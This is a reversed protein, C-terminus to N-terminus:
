ETIVAEPAAPRDTPEPQATAPRATPAPAAPLEPLQDVQETRLDGYILTYQEADELKFWCVVREADGLRAGAGTYAFEGTSQVVGLFTAGRAIDTAIPSFAEQAGAPDKSQDLERVTEIDLNLYDAFRQNMVAQRAESSEADLHEGSMVKVMEPGLTWVNLEDPFAGDTLATWLRLLQVIDEGAPNDLDMTVTQNYQEPVELEFRAMDLPADWAFDYMMVQTPSAPEATPTLMEIFVPLKTDPDVLVHGSVAGRQLDYRLVAQGHHEQEGVFTTHEEDLNKFDDLFNQPRQSDPLGALSGEVALKQDPLLTVMRQQTFNIVQIVRGTPTSMDQRFFSPNAAEGTGVFAGQDTEVSMKWTVTQVEKLREAVQAFAPTGSAFLNFYVLAAVAVAAAAALPTVVRMVFSRNFPFPFGRADAPKPPAETDPEPGLASGSRTAAVPTHNRSAPHSSPQPQALQERLHAAVEDDAPRPPVPLEDFADAIRAIPDPPNPSQTTRPNM